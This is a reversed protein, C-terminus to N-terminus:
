RRVRTSTNSTPIGLSELAPKMELCVPPDAVLAVAVGTPSATRGRCSTRAHHTADGSGNEGNLASIKKKEKKRRKGDNGRQIM